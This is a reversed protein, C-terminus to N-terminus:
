MARLCQMSPMLGWGPTLGKMGVPEGQRWCPDFDIIIAAGDEVMVDSPHLDNHVLELLHLHAVSDWVGQM